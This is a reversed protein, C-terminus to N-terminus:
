KTYVDVKMIGFSYKKEKADFISIPLHTTIKDAFKVLSRDYLTWNNSTPYMETVVIKSFGLRDYYYLQNQSIIDAAANLKLIDICDSAVINEESCQLEPFFMARQAVEIAKLQRTEEKDIEMNGQAIRIYFIFGVLVLVFFIFLVAITEMM